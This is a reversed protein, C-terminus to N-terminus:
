LRRVTPMGANYLGDMTGRQLFELIFNFFSLIKCFHGDNKQKVASLSGERVLNYIIHKLILESNCIIGTRDIVNGMLNEVQEARNIEIIHFANPFRCFFIQTSSKHHSICFFYHHVIKGQIQNSPILFKRPPSRCKQLFNLRNGSCFPFAGQFSLNPISIVPHDKPVAINVFATKCM